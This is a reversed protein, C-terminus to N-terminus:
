VGIVKVKFVKTWKVLLTERYDRFKKKAYECDRLFQIVRPPAVNTVEALHQKADAIFQRADEVEKKELVENMQFYIYCNFMVESEAALEIELPRLVDMAAVPLTWQEDREFNVWCGISLQEYYVDHVQKLIGNLRLTFMEVETKWQLLLVVLTTPWDHLPHSAERADLLVMQGSTM